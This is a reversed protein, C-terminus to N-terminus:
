LAEKIARSGEEISMKVLESTPRGLRGVLQDAIFYGTRWKREVFGGGFFADVSNEDGLANKFKKLLKAEDNRCEAVWDEFGAVGYWFYDDEPREPVVARSVQIALGERFANWALDERADDRLQLDHWAHTDEHAILVRTPESGSFWELCHFVAVEDNLRGAFANTSFTGVMLIHLPSKGTQEGPLGDGNQGAPEMNEADIDIGLASRVAPEVENILQPMLPGAEKVRVRVKSLERVVAHMGERGSQEAFFAQFIEPHADHYLDRWMQERILPSELGAKRAFKEFEPITDLIRSTM